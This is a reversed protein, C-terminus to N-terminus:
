LLSQMKWQRMGGEMVKNQGNTGAYGNNCIDQTSPTESDAM